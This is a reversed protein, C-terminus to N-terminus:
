QDLNLPAVPTAPPNGAVQDKQRVAVMSYLNILANTATKDVSRIAEDLEKFEESSSSTWKIFEAKSVKGDSQITDL